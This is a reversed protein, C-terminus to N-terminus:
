NRPLLNENQFTTVIDVGQLTCGINEEKLKLTELKVNLDRIRESSMKTSPSLNPDLKNKKM